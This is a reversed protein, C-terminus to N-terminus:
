RIPTEARYLHWRASLPNEGEIVSYFVWVRERGVFPEPEAKATVSDTLLWQRQPSEFLTSLWIEGPKAFTVDWFGAGAENVQYVTYARGAFVIPENSQALAPRRLASASPIIVEALRFGAEGPQRVYVHTRAEGDIGPLLIEVGNYFWSYPDVKDGPDDTVAQLTPDPQTLDLMRVQVVGNADRFGYTLAPKNKMWRAFASDLPAFGRRPREQREVVHIRAPEDLSIYQIEFGDNGPHTGGGPVAENKIWFVFGGGHDPLVTPYIARRTLDPPTPLARIEGSTPGTPRVLFLKGARDMGVYYAGDVDLGPDARGLVTSEFARFGKGDPPILDGTERDVGCHWVTGNGRTDTMEFWVMYRNDATFEVNAHNVKPDGVRVVQPTFEQPAAAPLTRNPTSASLCCALACLYRALTLSVYRKM